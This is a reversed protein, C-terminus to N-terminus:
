HVIPVQYITVLAKKKLNKQVLRFIFFCFCFILSLKFCPWFYNLIEFPILALEVILTLNKVDFLTMFSLTDTNKSPNFLSNSSLLHRTKKGIDLFSLGFLIKMFYAATCCCYKLSSCSLRYFHQNLLMNSNSICTGEFVSYTSLSSFM